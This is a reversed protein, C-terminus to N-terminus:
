CGISQVREKRGKGLIVYGTILTIVVAVIIVVVHDIIYGNVETYFPIGKRVLYNSLSVFANLAAHVSISYWINGTKEFVYVLIFGVALCQIFSQLQFGHVLTFAVTTIVMSIKKNFSHRLAGYMGYRFMLEESIPALVITFIYDILSSDPNVGPTLPHIKCFILALVSGLVVQIAAVAFLSVPVVRHNLKIKREKLEKCWGRKLSLIAIFISGVVIGLTGSCAASQDYTLDLPLLELIKDIVAISAFSVAVTALIICIFKLINKLM